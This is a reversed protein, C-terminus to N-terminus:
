CPNSPSPLPTLPPCSPSPWSPCSSSLSMSSSESLPTTLSLVLLLRDCCRTPKTPPMQGVKVPAQQPRGPLVDNERGYKELGVRLMRFALVGM